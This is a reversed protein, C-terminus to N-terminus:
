DGRDSKDMCIKPRELSAYSIPGGPILAEAPFLRLKPVSRFIASTSASLSLHTKVRPISGWVARGSLVGSRSGNAPMTKFDEVSNCFRENARRREPSVRQSSVSNTEHEAGEFLVVQATIRFLGFDSLGEFERSYATPYGRTKCSSNPYFGKSGDAGLAVSPCRAL